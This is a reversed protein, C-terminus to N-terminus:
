KKELKDLLESLEHTTVIDKFKKAKLGEYLIKDGTWLKAKLHKSLAVFTIDDPDIDHLLKEAYLLNKEPILEESIFAIRKTTILELEELEDITLGTLKLLKTRHKLLELKLVGTTYFEFHDKSHFLIKGIKGKSNLISSFVINTDVIIRM